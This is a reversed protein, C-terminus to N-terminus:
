QIVYLVFMVRYTKLKTGDPDIRYKEAAIVFHTGPLILKYGPETSQQCEGAINCTFVTEFENGHFKRRKWGAPVANPYWFNVDDKATVSWNVVVCGFDKKEFVEVATALGYYLNWDAAANKCSQADARTCIPAFLAFLIGYIVWRKLRTIRQFPSRHISEYDTPRSNSDGRRSKLNLLKSM